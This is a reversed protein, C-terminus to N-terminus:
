FKQQSQNWIMLAIGSKVQPCTELARRLYIELLEPEKPSISYVVGVLNSRLKGVAYVDYLNVWPRFAIPKHVKM